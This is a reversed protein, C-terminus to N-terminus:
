ARQLATFAASTTLGYLAASGVPIALGKPERRRRKRAPTRRKPRLDAVVPLSAAHVLGSNLAARLPGPLHRRTRAIGYAAGVMASYTLQATMRAARVQRASLKLGAKRGATRILRAWEDDTTDETALVGRRVLMSLLLVAAGGILGAAAGRFAAQSVDLENQEREIPM